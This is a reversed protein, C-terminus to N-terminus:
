KIRAKLEAQSETEKYDEILEVIQKKLKEFERCFGDCYCPKEELCTFEWNGMKDGDLIQWIRDNLTEEKHKEEVKSKLVYFILGLLNNLEIKKNRDKIWGFFIKSKEQETDELHPMFGLDKMIEYKKHYPLQIFENATQRANPEKLEFDMGEPIDYLKSEDVRIHEIFNYFQNARETLTTSNGWKGFLAFTVEEQDEVRIPIWNEKALELAEEFLKTAITYSYASLGNVSYEKFDKATPTEPVDVIGWCPPSASSRYQLKKM